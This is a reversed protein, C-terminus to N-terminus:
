ELTAMVDAKNMMVVDVHDIKIETGVVKGFIIRDGVKLTLLVM